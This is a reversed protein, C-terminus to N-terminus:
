TPSTSSKLNNTNFLLILTLHLESEYYRKYLFPVTSAAIVLMAVGAISGAVQATERMGKLNGSESWASLYVIAHM